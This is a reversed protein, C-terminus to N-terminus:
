PFVDPDVVSKLFRYLLESEALPSFYLEWPTVKVVLEITKLFHCTANPKLDNM